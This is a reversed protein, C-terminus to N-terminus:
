ASPIGRKGGCADDGARLGAKANRESATALATIARAIAKDLSLRRGRDWADSHDRPPLQARVTEVLPREEAAVLEDDDDAM